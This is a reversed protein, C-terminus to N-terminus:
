PTISVIYWDDGDKAENKMVYTYTYSTGNNLTVTRTSGSGYSTVSYTGTKPYLSALYDRTAMSFATGSTFNNKGISNSNSNLDKVFQDIRENATLGGEEQCATFVAFILILIALLLLINKKM